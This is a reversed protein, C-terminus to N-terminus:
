PRGHIKEATFNHKLAGSRADWITVPDVFENNVSSACMALTGGDRSLGISSMRRDITFPLATSEAVKCTRVLRGTASEWVRTGGHAEAVYLIRGDPSFAIATAGGQHDALKRLVSGT